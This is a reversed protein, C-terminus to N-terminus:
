ALRAVHRDWSGSPWPDLRLVTHEFGRLAAVTTAATVYAKGFIASFESTPLVVTFLSVAM